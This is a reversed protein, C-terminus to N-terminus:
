EQKDSQDSKGDDETSPPNTEEGEAKTSDAEEAKQEDSGGDDNGETSEQEGAEDSGEPKEPASTANADGGNDDTGTIGANNETNEGYEGEANSYEANKVNALTEGDLKVEARAPVQKDDVTLGHVLNGVDQLLRNADGKFLRVAEDAQAGHTDNDDTLVVTLEVELKITETQTRAM